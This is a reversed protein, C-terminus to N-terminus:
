CMEMVKPNKKKKNKVFESNSKKSKTLENGETLYGLNSGEEGISFSKLKPIKVMSDQQTLYIFLSDKPWKKKDIKNLECKRLTDFGPTVKFAIISEDFAIKADKGRFISDLKQTIANYIFLYGDGKLPTKEYTVFNGCSSIQQKESKKWEFYANHDIVKKQANLGFSFLFCATLITFKWKM